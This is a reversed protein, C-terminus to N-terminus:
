IEVQDGWAAGVFIACVTVLLSLNPTSFVLAQSTSSPNLVSM